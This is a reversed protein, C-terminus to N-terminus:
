TKSIIIWVAAMAPTGPSIHITLSLNKSYEKKLDEINKIAIKYIEGFETPGSLKVERLDTPTNTKTRLWKIFNSNKSNELNSLLVILDFNRNTVAQAIPGIGASELEESARIDTLGIWSLLLKM